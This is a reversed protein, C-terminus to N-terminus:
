ILDDLNSVQDTGIRDFRKEIEQQWVYPLDGGRKVWINHHDNGLKADGVKVYELERLIGGVAASTANLGEMKVSSALQRSSVMDEAILPHVRNRLLEKITQALPTSSAEVMNQLYITDPAHADPKFSAPIPWAELWARIGAARCNIAHYLAEFYSPPLLSRVQKKTQIASELIFYRRDEDQLALADHHNTFLLYNTCNHASIEDKGKKEISVEGNTIYPKLKNMVAHRNEGIVRIEEIARLQVGGAWATFRSEMLQNANVSKANEKGIVARMIDFLATKGCGQAGQIVPAWRVKAGPCQVHYALFSILIQGYEEEKILNRVHARVIEGASIDAPDAEVYSAQYTNIYRKSGIKIVAQDFHQPAYHYNSVRPVKAINLIFDKAEIPAKGTVQDPGLFVNFTNNLTDPTWTRDTNRHYFENTDSVYTLGRAWSPLQADPTSTADSTDHNKASRLLAELQKKLATKPVRYKFDSLRRQLADILVEREIPSELHAAAIKNVGEAVLEASSRAADGIWKHVTDFSRKSFAASSWGSEEALHILSRITRPSRNRATHSVANWKAETVERGEYKQKAGSSWEEFVELAAAAEPERPFQHKLCMCVELWQSYSCDADVHKLAERADETTFGELPAKLFEINDSEGDGRKRSGRAAQSPAEIDSLEIETVDHGEPVAVLVPDVQEGRYVVPRYMAQVISLGALDYDGEILGLRLAVFAVAAPYADPSINSASVFIRLKPAESTSSATQYAIFAYPSLASTLKSPDEVFQRAPYNGRKGADLDMAIVNAGEPTSDNSRRLEADKYYGPVLYPVKKRDDREKKTLALFQTRTLNQQIPEAIVEKVLQAFTTVGDLLKIRGMDVRGSPLLASGYYRKESM